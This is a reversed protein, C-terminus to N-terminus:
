DMLSRQTALRPSRCLLSLQEVWEEVKGNIYQELYSRSGLAAGLHKRVETTINIATEGFISRATKKKDPKTVLWCKGANSYYNLDLGAVTLEDWWAKINQISGCGTADDAFWCQKAQSLSDTPSLYAATSQLCVLV